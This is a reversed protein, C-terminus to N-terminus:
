ASRTIPVIARHGAPTLKDVVLGSRSGNHRDTNGGLVGIGGLIGPKGVHVFPTSGFPGPSQRAGEVLRDVGLPETRLPLAQLFDGGLAARQEDGVMGAGDRGVGRDDHVPDLLLEPAGDVSQGVEEEPGHRDEPGEPGTGSTDRGAGGVGVPKQFLM